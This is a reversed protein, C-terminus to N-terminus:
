IVCDCVLTKQGSIAWKLTYNSLKMLHLPSTRASCHQTVSQGARHWTIPICLPTWFIWYNKFSIWTANQSQLTPVTCLAAFRSVPLLASWKRRLQRRTKVSRRSAICLILSLNSIFDWQWHVLLCLMCAPLSGAIFPTDWTLRCHTHTCLARDAARPNQRELLTLSMKIQM